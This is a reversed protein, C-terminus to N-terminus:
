VAFVCIHILHAQKQWSKAKAAVWQVVFPQGLQTLMTPLNYVLFLKSAQMCNGM